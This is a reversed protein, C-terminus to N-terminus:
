FPGHKLPLRNETQLVAALLRDRMEWVIERYAPDAALNVFEQPDRKLDYLVERGHHTRWYKYDRTRLTKTGGGGEPNHWQFKTIDWANGGEEILIRDKGGPGKGTILDWQSVGGVGLPAELGAASLITPLFDVSEMLEDVSRGAPVHGPWRFFAPTRIVEDTNWTGKSWRDHDGASEGHDSWFVILTDDLQGNRRLHDIIRGVHADIMTCSAYYYHRFKRIYEDGLREDKGMAWDPTYGPPKDEHEGPRRIAEPLKAPDYMDLYRQPIVLTPHPNFFGASVLWPKGERRGREIADIALDATWATHHLEEPAPFPVLDKGTYDSWPRPARCNEVQDPAVREVWRLYDDRYSGPQDAVIIHDFGYAPHPRDYDRTFHCQFHLKGVQATFYGADRMVHALTIEHEPLPVGNGRVGHSSCYRGTWWCARSPMCVPNNAFMNGLNAGERALQDLVPTQIASNGNVGLCDWRQQDTNIFLINPMDKRESTPRDHELPRPRIESDALLSGAAGALLSAASWQM